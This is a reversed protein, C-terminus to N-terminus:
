GKKSRSAVGVPVKKKGGYWFGRVAKWRENNGDKEVTTKKMGDAGLNALHDDEHNHARFIHKVYEGIKQGRSPCREKEMMFVPDKQVCGIRERLKQGM